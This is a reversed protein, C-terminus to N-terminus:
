IATPQNPNFLDAGFIQTLIIVGAKGYIQDIDTAGCEARNRCDLFLAKFLRKEDITLRERLPQSQLWEAGAKFAHISNVAPVDGMIKAHNEAVRNLKEKDM